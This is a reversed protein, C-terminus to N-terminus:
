PKDPVLMRETWSVARPVSRGAALLRWPRFCLGAAVDRLALLPVRASGPRHLQQEAASAAQCTRWDALLVVSRYTGPWPNAPELVGLRSFWQAAESREHRLTALMALSWLAEPNNPDALLRASADQHVRKQYLLHGDLQHEPGIREMLQALGAPGSGAALALDPFQRAFDTTAPTRRQWLELWEQGNAWHLQQLREFRGDAELERSFQRNERRHRRQGGSGLLILEARERLRQRDELRRASLHRGVLSGGSLRGATTVSHENLERTDPVVVVTRPKGGSSQRLPALAAAIPPATIPRQQIALSTPLELLLVGGALLTLRRRRRWLERWGGALVIVMAPLLPAFYREDKNPSLSLLLLGGAACVLIWAWDAPIPRIGQRRQAALALGLAGLASSILGLQGPLRLLYWTLGFTSFVAPDGEAAASEFVARNTGGLTTIWNHHLWPLIWALCVILALLLWRRKGSRGLLASGAAVLVPIALFLLASQKILIAAALATAAALTLGPGPDDRQHWRGLLWLALAITATLPLDLSFRLTVQWLGPSLALLGATFLGFRPGGIERAWRAVVLLLLALWVLLVLRAQDPADGSVRLICGNVLSALPPIKPSLNLLGGWGPWQAPALCGLARGHDVASNLYDAQDWSLYGPHGLLWLRQLATCALWILGLGGWWRWRPQGGKM